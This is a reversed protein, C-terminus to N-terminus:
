LIKESKMQAVFVPADNTLHSGNERSKGDNESVTIEMGSAEKVLQLCRRGIGQRKYSADHLDMYMWTLHLVDIPPNGEMEILSFRM